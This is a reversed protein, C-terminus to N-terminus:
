PRYISWTSRGLFYRDDNLFLVFPEEIGFLPEIDATRAGRALDSMLYALWRVIQFVYLRGYKQVIRTAGGRTMLTAMDTIPTTDEAHHLVYTVPGLLEAMAASQADDKARQRDSYHRTLIPNGVRDWWAAVPEPLRAAKGGVILDLNHYRSLKAFETLTAVVGHHITDTPRECYPKSSRHKSSLEACRDLLGAIDHGISRLEDDTPFAGSHSIAHDAVIILKALRELGISLGFFAQTYIGLQAHNAKGLATVGVAIQEAALEAERGLAHWEDSFM